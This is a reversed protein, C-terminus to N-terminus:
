RNSLALVDNADADQDPAPLAGADARSGSIVKVGLQDSLASLEDQDDDDKEFRNVHIFKDVRIAANGRSEGYHGRLIPMDDVRLVVSKPDEIPLIDGPKLRALQGVTLPISPLVASMEIDASLVEERLSADWREDKDTRDSQVGADLLDRIPEIMSYPLTVQLLGGGGEIELHFTSIVVVETPTVIQAVHPNVEHGQYDFEIKKVASWAKTMEKFVEEVVLRIVRLEMPTFDRGEIKTYFRGSGGFFNEVINFILKPELVVLGTGRLPKVRVLSLSTPVFMSQMYESYKLMKVGEFSLEVPKRLMNFITVRFYRMFRENIMELTPLRGRVIRDQNTFDYVPIEGNAEDGAQEDVTEIAGDDVGHLLADIEDQSLIDKTAM